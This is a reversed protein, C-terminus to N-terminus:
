GTRSPCQARNKLRCLPPLYARAPRVLRRSRDDARRHRMWPCETSWGSCMEHDVFGIGLDGNGIDVLQFLKEILHRGMAIGRYALPLSAAGFSSAM